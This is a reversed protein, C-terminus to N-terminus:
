VLNTHGEAVIVAPGTLTTTDTSVTVTLTGGPVDVTCTGVGGLAVAAAAVAGTGCSRTEGVGREHVRMTIHNAPGTIFEVNVGTPFLQADVAPVKHLDLTYPDDVRCVLHPNGMSVRTGAYRRGDVIAESAGEFRAPGMDVRFEDGVCSVTRLGARTALPIDGPEALDHELLYRAFVRVGNGCMEAVSGDANYYDMFWEAESSLEVAEPHKASRVVRLLGDGGIGSRRDCLDAIQWNTLPAANDPDALIVFDNGTGHGKSFATASGKAFDTM